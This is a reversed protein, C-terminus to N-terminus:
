FETLEMEVNSELAAKREDIANKIKKRPGFALGLEKLDDLTFTMLVEMEVKEEKFLKSYESLYLSALFTDVESPEDFGNNIDDDDDSWGNSPDQVMPFSGLSSSAGAGNFVQSSSSPIDSDDEREADAAASYMSNALKFNSRLAMTGFRQSDYGSSAGTSMSDQGTFMNRLSARGQSDNNPKPGRSPMTESPMYMVNGANKESHFGAISKVTRGGASANGDSIRFESQVPNSTSSKRQSKKTDKSSDKELPGNTSSSRHIKDLKDQQQKQMKEYAKIRKEAAKKAKDQLNTVKKKDMSKQKVIVGDLYQVCAHQERIAAVDMITHYDNDMQWINAGFNVLFTLCNLHGNASAFHLATNGTYDWKDPDGGRSCCLRLADINGHYAAWLTPTMGGEDQQNLDKKTAQKLPELYGDKAARHFRDNMKLM